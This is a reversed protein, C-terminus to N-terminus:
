QYPPISIFLQSVIRQRAANAHTWENAAEFVFFGTAGFDASSSRAPAVFTHDCSKSDKATPVEGYAAFHPVFSQKPTLSQRAQEPSFASRMSGLKADAWGFLQLQDTASKPPM